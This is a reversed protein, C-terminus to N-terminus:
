RPPCRRRPRPRTGTPPSTTTASTSSTSARRRAEPRTTRRRGTGRRTPRSCRTSSCCSATPRSASSSSRTPSCSAARSARAGRRARLDRARRRAAPRVRRRRGARDGRRRDDAPRPGRRGEDDAHLAARAAREAEQMGAPMPRGQVTGQERYEKWASGFLYGARSASWRSRSPAACSCRGATPTPGPRRGPLRGPRRQHVHNPLLDAVLDFWFSSIATLVRGKDPIADPLVVDFVSVRDSAVMLIRDDGADYLDRVKGSYLHPLSIM